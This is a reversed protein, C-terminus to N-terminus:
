TVPHTLALLPVSTDFSGVPASLRHASGQGARVAEFIVSSGLTLTSELGVSHSAARFTGENDPVNNRLRSSNGLERSVPAPGWSALSSAVILAM